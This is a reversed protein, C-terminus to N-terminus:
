KQELKSNTSEEFLFKKITSVNVVARMGCGVYFHCAYHKKFSSFFTNNDKSCIFKGCTLFIQKRQYLKKQFDEVL